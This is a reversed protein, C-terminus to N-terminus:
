KFMPEFMAELEEKTMERSKIMEDEMIILIVFEKDENKSVQLFTVEDPSTFVSLVDYYGQSIPKLRTCRSKLVKTDKKAHKQIEKAFLNLIWAIIILVLAMGSYAVSLGIGEDKLVFGHITLIAIVIAVIIAVGVTHSLYARCTLISNVRKHAEKIRNIVKEVDETAITKKVDEM